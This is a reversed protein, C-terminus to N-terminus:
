LLSTKSDLCDQKRDEGPSDKCCIAVWNRDSKWSDVPNAEDGDYMAKVSIIVMPSKTVYLGKSLANLNKEISPKILRKKSNCGLILVSYLLTSVNIKM